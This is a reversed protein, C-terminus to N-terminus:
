WFSIDTNARGPASLDQISGTVRNFTIRYSMVIGPNRSAGQVQISVPYEKVSNAFILTSVASNYNDEFSSIGPATDGKYGQITNGYIKVNASDNFIHEPMQDGVITDSDLCHVPSNARVRIAAMESDPGYADKWNKRISRTFSLQNLSLDVDGINNSALKIVTNQLQNSALTLKGIADTLVQGLGDSGTYELLNDKLTVSTQNNPDESDTSIQTDNWHQYLITGMTGDQYVKNGQFLVNKSMHFTALVGAGAANKATNNIFSINSSGEADLCTDGCREVTNNQVVISDGMAGWIGASVDTVQNDHIQVQRVWRPNKSRGGRRPNADGGWWMIGIEAHSIRNGSVEVSRAWGINAGGTGAYGLGDVVNNFVKLNSNLQSEKTLGATASPDTTHDWRDYAKVPFDLGSVFLSLGRTVCDRVTVNKASIVTLLAGSHGSASLNSVEVSSVFATASGTARFLDTSARTQEILTSSGVGHIKVNSSLKITKSLIFHGAPFDIEVVNGSAKAVADSIAKQIASSDDNQDQGWSAPISVHTLASLPQTPQVPYPHIPQYPRIPQPQNPQYPQNPKLPSFPQIRIPLVGVSTGEPDGVGLAGQDQTRRHMSANPENLCGTLLLSSVM